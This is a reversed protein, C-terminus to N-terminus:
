PSVELQRCTLSEPHGVIRACLTVFSEVAGGDRATRADTTVRVDRLTAISIALELLWVIM